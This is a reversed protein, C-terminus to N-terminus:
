CMAHTVEPCIHLSQAARLRVEDQAMEVNEFISTSSANSPMRYLTRGAPLSHGNERGADVIRAGDM